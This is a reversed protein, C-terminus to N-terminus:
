TGCSAVQFRASLVGPIQEALGEPDAGSLAVYDARAVSYQASAALTLAMPSEEFAFDLDRNEPILLPAPSVGSSNFRIQVTATSGLSYTGRIERDNVQGKPVYDLEVLQPNVDLGIEPDRASGDVNFAAAMIDVTPLTSGTPDFALQCVNYLASVDEPQLRDGGPGTSDDCAGLFAVALGVSACRLSRPISSHIM